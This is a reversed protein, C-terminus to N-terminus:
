QEVEVDNPLGYWSVEDYCECESLPRNCLDCTGNSEEARRVAPRM